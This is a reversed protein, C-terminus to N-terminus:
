GLRMNKRGFWRPFVAAMGAGGVAGAAGGRLLRELASDDPDGAVLSGAAGTAGGVAAGRGLSARYEPNERLWKLREKITAKAKGGRKSAKSAASRASKSVKRAAGTAKEVLKYIGRTGAVKTLEDTFGHMVGPTM